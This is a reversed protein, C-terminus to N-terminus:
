PTTTTSSRVPHRYLRWVSEENGTIAVLDLKKSFTEHHQTTGSILVADFYDADTKTVRGPQWLLRRNWPKERIGRYHMISSYHEAFSFNISCQKFVQAYAFLQLTPVGKLEYSSRWFDLGLVQEGSKLALLAEDFGKLDEQEYLHWARSTAATIAIFILAALMRTTRQTVHTVNLPPSALLALWWAYPLWRSNFSMTNLYFDPLLVYCGALLGAASALAPSYGLYRLHRNTIGAAILYLMAILLWTSEISNALGGLTADTIRYWDLRDPIPILWEAGINAGSDGRLKHLQPFWAIAMLSPLGFTTTLTSFANKLSTRHRLFVWIGAILFWLAHSFYLLLGATALGIRKPPKAPHDFQQVLWLFVPWGILFNLLGLYLNHNFAIPLALLCATVTSSKRFSLYFSIFIPVAILAAIMLKGATLPDTVRFLMYLPLYILNNPFYWPAVVYQNAVGKLHEDLLAVQALHQPLDTLPLYRIVFLPSCAVAVAFIPIFSDHLSKRVAPWWSLFRTTM